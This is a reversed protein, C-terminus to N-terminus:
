FRSYIDKLLSTRGVRPELYKLIIEIRRKMEKENQIREREEKEQRQKKNIENLKNVSTPREGFNVGFKRLNANELSFSKIIKSQNFLIGLLAVLLCYFAQMRMRKLKTM